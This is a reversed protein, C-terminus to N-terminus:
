FGSPAPAFESRWLRPLHGLGPAALRWPPGCLCPHATAMLALCVAMSLCPVLYAGGPVKFRRPLEPRRIRLVMVGLSVLLFAFLTGLSTLEGLIEVPLLGGLLACVIGTLWTGRAPVGHANVAAFWSGILGDQGMAMLIRPQAMMMGLINASLGVVAAVIVLVELWRLGIAAVGLAMPHPVSLQQYPVIGTLVVAVAVYLLTCVALAGLIGLPVDRGPNRTEGAATCVADFGIYSLYVMTTAQLVGSWGFAGFTGLNDPVFPTLNELRVVRSACAVFLLVATVKLVVVARNFAASRKLGGHLLLAMGLSLVVAPVNVFAKTRVLTGAQQSWEFPASSFAAPLDIGLLDRFLAVCYGSWGVAVLAATVLYGLILNWGIVFAPLEGLTAYVYSYASGAVPFMSVMEAYCLAALAAAIGAAIFALAVAPGANLAAARGTIVFIGTGLITGIGLFMLDTATLSRKLGTGAAADITQEPSKTAFWLSARRMLGSPQRLMSDRQDFM